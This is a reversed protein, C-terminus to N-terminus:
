SLRPERFQLIVATADDTGGETQARHVLREAARKAGESTGLVSAIDDSSLPKSVGDSCLLLADGVELEAEFPDVHPARDGAVASWLVHELRASAARDALGKRQMQEGLTQDRTLLELKGQRFLYLRSDGVHAGVLRPWDVWALTATTGLHADVSSARGIEMLQAHAGMLLTRLTKPASRKLRAPFLGAAVHRTVIASALRGHAHGGMGDAVMVFAQGPQADADDLPPSPDLGSILVGESSWALLQDQNHGRKGTVTAAGLDAQPVSIATEAPRSANLPM